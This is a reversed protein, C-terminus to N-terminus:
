CTGLNNELIMVYDCSDMLKELKTLNWGIFSFHRTWLSWGGRDGQTLAWTKRIYVPETNMSSQTVNGDGPHATLQIANVWQEWVSAEGHFIVWFKAGGHGSIAGVCFTVYRQGWKEVCVRRSSRKANRSIMVDKKIDGNMNKEKRM